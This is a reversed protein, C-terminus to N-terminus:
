PSAFGMYVLCFGYFRQHSMLKKRAIPELLRSVRRYATVAAAAKNQKTEKSWRNFDKFAEDVIKNLEEM